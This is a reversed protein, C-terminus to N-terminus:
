HRISMTGGDYIYQVSDMVWAFGELKAANSRAKSSKISWSPVFKWATIVFLTIEALLPLVWALIM